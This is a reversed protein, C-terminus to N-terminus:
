TTRQTTIQRKISEQDKKPQCVKKDSLMILNKNHILKM